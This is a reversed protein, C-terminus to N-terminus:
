HAGDPAKALSLAQAALHRVDILLALEIGDQAIRADRASLPWCQESTMGVRRFQEGPHKGAEPDFLAVESRDGRLALDAPIADGAGIFSPAASPGDVATRVRVSVAAEARVPAFEISCPPSGRPLLPSSVAGLGVFRKELLRQGQRLRKGSL